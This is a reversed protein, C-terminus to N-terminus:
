FRFQGELMRIGLQVGGGGGRGRGWVVCVGGTEQMRRAALRRSIIRDPASM